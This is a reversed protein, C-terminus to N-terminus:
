GLHFAAIVDALGHDSRGRETKTVFRAGLCVGVHEAGDALHLIV